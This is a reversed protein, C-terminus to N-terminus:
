LFVVKSLIGKCVSPPLRLRPPFLGHGVVFVPTGPSPYIENELSALNQVDFEKSYHDGKMELDPLGVLAIDIYNKSLFLLNGDV